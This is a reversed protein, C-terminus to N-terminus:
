LSELEREGGGRGRERGMREGEEDGREEERGGEREKDRRGGGVGRLFLSGVRETGACVDVTHRGLERSRRELRTQPRGNIGNCTTSSNWHM